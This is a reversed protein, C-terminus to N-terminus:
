IIIPTLKSFNDLRSAARCISSLKACMTGEPRPLSTTEYAYPNGTFSEVTTYFTMRCLSSTIISVFLPRNLALVRRTVTEVPIKCLPTILNSGGRGWHFNSAISASGIPNNFLIAKFNSRSINLPVGGADVTYSNPPSCFMFKKTLGNWHLMANANTPPSWATSSSFYPSSTAISSAFYRSRLIYPGTTSSANTRPRKQPQPRFGHVRPEYEAAFGPKWCMRLWIFFGTSLWIKKAPSAQESTQLPHKGPASKEPSVAARRM